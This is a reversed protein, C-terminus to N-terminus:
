RWWTGFATRFVELPTKRDWGDVGNYWKLGLSQLRRSRVAIKFWMPWSPGYFLRSALCLRNLKTGVWSSSFRQTYEAFSFDRRRLAGIVATAAFAGHEFAFSIGEGMLPEAGAADGVLLVGPASIPCTTNYGFIPFSRFHRGLDAPPCYGAERLEETLLAKLATNSLSRDAVSYIGVNVHPVGRIVCPFKWLYGRLGTRVATFNFDFRRHSFGVWDSEAISVDCMMGKGAPEPARRVLERRTRSGSGDAGVVVRALYTCKDTEIRTGNSEPVLRIVKESERVRAGRVKAEEVLSYDFENRRIITCMEGQGSVPVAGSPTKILANDVKVHPVSLPIDLRHLCSLTHPILGGACVKERPHVARELLLIEGSLSPDIKLLNLATATGAPGSGVIVIDVRDM